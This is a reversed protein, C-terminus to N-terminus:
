HYEAVLNIFSLDHNELSFNLVREFRSEKCVYLFRLTVCARLFEKLVGISDCLILSRMRNITKYAFTM